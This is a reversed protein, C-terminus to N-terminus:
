DKFLYHAFMLISVLAFVSKVITLICGAFWHVTSHLGVGVHVGVGIGIGGLATRSSRGWTAGAGVRAGNVETRPKLLCHAFTMISVSVLFFKVISNFHGWSCILRRGWTVAGTGSPAAGWRAGERM